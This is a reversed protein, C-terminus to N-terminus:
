GLYFGSFRTWTDYAYVDGTVNRVGMTDNASFYDVQTLTHTEHNGSSKYNRQEVGVGGNKEFYTDNRSGTSHTLYHFTFSYWGAIPCTFLGNATNYNTGGRQTVNPFAMVGVATYITAGWARFAPQNPTNIHGSGNIQLRTTGGTLAHNTGTHINVTDAGGLYMAENGAGDTYSTIYGTNTGTNQFQIGGYVGSNVTLNASTSTNVSVAGTFTDGAVNAYRTDDEAQTKFLAGRAIDHSRGM